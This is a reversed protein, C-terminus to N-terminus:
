RAKRFYPPLSPKTAILIELVARRQDASLRAFAGSGDAGTLVDFLRRYVLDKARAPLSEFSDAYILFSCPYRFLRTQLDFQRLSRGQLDNPGEAEFDARFSGSGETRDRLPAEDVFLMYRVATEVTAPLEPRDLSAEYALRVFLNHMRVQHDLVMLAVIDSGATPYFALNLRGKLSTVNAGRESDVRHNSGSAVGNGLHRAAGHTGTVYWGGWRQSLPSRHDTLFAGAEPIPEGASDVFLSRTLFGPIGQTNVGFHCKLCEENRRLFRPHDTKKQELTYFIAGKLPDAEAIELLGGRVLGAYVDDGFYLARPHDPGIRAAQMSTKSFVLTQSSVAIGLERLVSDLYGWKDNYTLKSEGKDLRQQLRSVAGTHSESYYDIQPARLSPVWWTEQGCLSLAIALAFTLKVLRM